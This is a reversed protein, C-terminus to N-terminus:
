NKTKIQKIDLPNLDKLAEPLLDQPCNQYSIPRLWRYISDTGVSTFRSDTSAPFPGGHCMSQTVSVGTPVGKFLLRGVKKELVDVLNRNNIIDNSSGLITGTLQGPLFNIIETIQNVSKCKIILSYPGFVEEKFFDNKLFNESTIVGVSALSNNKKSRYIKVGLNEHEKIKNIYNEKISPHVMSSTESNSFIKKVQELFNDSDSSLFILGPNTCFQGTGLLISNSIQEALNEDEKLKDPLVVIPNSSGMEAFVPIPDMRKQSIDYLSKGGLYSGTFGVGKINKNSVLQEGVRHSKGQLHSFVGEPLESKLVASNVAQSVLESTGAHFPHGKLVVPCGAALASITDGGATSFALPFNSAGFVAIPGIPKFMKRLDPGNADELKIIPKVYSGENLINVFTNIQNITRNFEIEARGEPFGSELKYQVIIEKKIKNIESIIKILFKAREKTSKLSFVSFAKDALEAAKDVQSISATFYKQPLISEDLANITYFIESDKDEIFSNGILNKGTIM